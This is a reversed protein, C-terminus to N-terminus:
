EWCEIPEALLKGVPMVHTTFSNPDDRFGPLYRHREISNRVKAESSFLGIIKDDRGAFLAPDKRTHVLLFVEKHEVM